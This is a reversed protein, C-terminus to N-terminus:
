GAAPGVDALMGREMAVGDGIADIRGLLRVRTRARPRSRTGVEVRIRNRAIQFDRADHEDGHKAPQQAGHTYDEPM